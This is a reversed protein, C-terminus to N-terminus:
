FILDYVDDDTECAATKAICNMFNKITQIKINTEHNNVYIYFSIFLEYLNYYFDSHHHVMLFNNDICM